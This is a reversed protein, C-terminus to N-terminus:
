LWRWAEALQLQSRRFGLSKPTKNDISMEAQTSVQQSFSTLQRQSSLRSSSLNRGYCQNLVMSQYLLNRVRKVEKLYNNFALGSFKLATTDRDSNFQRYLFWLLSNHCNGREYSLFDPNPCFTVAWFKPLESDGSQLSLMKHRSQQKM